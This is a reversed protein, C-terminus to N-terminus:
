RAAATETPRLAEVLTNVNARIMGAYTDAGSGTAGLADSYLTGGLRVEFGRARVAARVAEIARPPVSSEVFMAPIRREAVFRALAQVDATGAEAATSIGQLGRVEFGYSRGFYSFADHATVLVRQPAPIEAVRGRVWADLADLSDLTAALRARYGDAHTPDLTMLRGAIAYAAGKWLVPDMWVHPDYNGQFLASTILRERPISDAVAQAAIGQAEIQELVEAMKGELHLGNYFVVDAHTLRGVDGESARYLHPDVGPGMLATVEVREGGVLRALDAIMGTTAVVRVTRESLEGSEQRGNTCGSLALLAGLGFLM